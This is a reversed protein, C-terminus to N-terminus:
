WEGYPAPFVMDKNVIIMFYEGNPITITPKVDMQRRILENSVNGLNQGLSGAVTEGITPYTNFGRNTPQSLQIGSSIASLLIAGGFLRDYHNNVTHHLGMQGSRDASQMNQVVLSAGNPFIIREWIVDVRTQGFNINSNVNGYIKTGKPILSHAGTVTDYMTRTIHAVAPGGIDSNIEIDLQAPIATGAKIEYNSVAYEVNRQLYYEPRVLPTDAYHNNSDFSVISDNEQNRPQIANNTAQQTESNLIKGGLRQKPPQPPPTNIPAQQIIKPEQIIPEPPPPPAPIEIGQAKGVFWENGTLPQAPSDISSSKNKKEDGCSYLMVGFILIVIIASIFLGNSNARPVGIQALKYEEETKM